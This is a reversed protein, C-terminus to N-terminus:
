VEKKDNKFVKVPSNRSNHQRLILLIKERTEQANNNEAVKVLNSEGGCAIPSPNGEANYELLLKVADAHGGKVAEHIVMTKSPLRTNPDAKADLLSRMLAPHQLCHALAPVNAADKTNPDAKADVMVQGIKPDLEVATIFLPRGLADVGNADANYHLLLRAAGYNRGHITHWLPPQGSTFGVRGNPDAGCRLSALLNNYCPALLAARMKANQRMLFDSLDQKLYSNLKQDKAMKALQEQLACLGPVGHSIMATVAALKGKQVARILPTHKNEDIAELSCGANLCRAVGQTDGQDIASEFEVPIKGPTLLQMPIIYQMTISRPGLPIHPVAATIASDIKGAHAIVASDSKALEQKMSFLLDIEKDTLDPCSEFYEQVVVADSKGPMKPLAALAKAPDALEAAERLAARLKKAQDSSADYKNLQAGPRRPSAPREMGNVSIMCTVILSIKSINQMMSEQLRAEHSQTLFFGLLFARAFYM